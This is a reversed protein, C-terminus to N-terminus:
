FWSEFGNAVSHNSPTWAGGAHQIVYVVSSQSMRLRASATVTALSPSPNRVARLGVLQVCTTVVGSFWRHRGKGWHGGALKNPSDPLSSGSLFWFNKGVEFCVDCTPKSSESGVGPSLVLAVIGLPAFSFCAQAPASYLRSFSPRSTSPPPSTIHCSHCFLAYHFASLFPTGAAGFNLPHRRLGERNRRRLAVGKPM